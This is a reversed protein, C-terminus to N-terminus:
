LDMYNHNLLESTDAHKMEILLSHKNLKNYDM